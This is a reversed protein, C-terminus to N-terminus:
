TEVSWSRQPNCRTSSPIVPRASIPRPCPRWGGPTVERAGRPAQWDVHHGRMWAQPNRGRAALQLVVPMVLDRLPGVANPSKASSTRFGQERDEQFSSNSFPNSTLQRWITGIHGLPGSNGCFGLEPALLAM